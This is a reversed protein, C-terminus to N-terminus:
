GPGTAAKSLEFEPEEMSLSFSACIHTGLGPASDITLTGGLAQAREEMGRLGLTAAATGAARVAKLDFGVGNDGVLLLLEDGTREV